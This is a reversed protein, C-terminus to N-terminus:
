GLLGLREALQLQQRIRELGATDYMRGDHMFAVAGDHEARELVPIRDLWGDLDTRTPTFVENVVEVVARSPGCHAGTYGLHKNETMFARIGDLDTRGTTGGGIPFRVGAARVDVLVKSRLFLSERSDDSPIVGISAGLDGWFGGAVGGMYTVRRSASAIEFAFKVGLATEVVPRVLTSGADVGNAAEAAGLLRSFEEVDAASEAKPMNVCHLAPCVIAALDEACRGTDLRNTRAMPVIGAAALEATAHRVVDRARDKHPEPTLDEMDMCVADAGLTAAKGIADEDYAPVYVMTRIIGPMVPKAAQTV